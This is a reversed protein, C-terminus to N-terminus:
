ENARESLFQAHWKELFKHEAKAGKDKYLRGVWKDSYRQAFLYGEDTFDLNMLAMSPEFFEPVAPVAQLLYNHQILFKCFQWFRRQIVEYKVEPFGAQRHTAESNIQWQMSTITFDHTPRPPYKKKMAVMDAVFLISYEQLSRIHAVARM